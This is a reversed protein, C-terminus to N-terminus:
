QNLNVQQQLQALAQSIFTAYREPADNLANQTIIVTAARFSTEAHITVFISLLLIFVLRM